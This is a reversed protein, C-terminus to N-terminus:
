WIIHMYGFIPDKLRRNCGLGAGGALIPNSDAKNQISSWTPEDIVHGDALYGALEPLEM